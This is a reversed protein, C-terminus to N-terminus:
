ICRILHMGVCDSQIGRVPVVKECDYILKM